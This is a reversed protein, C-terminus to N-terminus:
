EHLNVLGEKIAYLAAQTRNEVGLKDLITTVYTRVPWVSLFLRESIEQNSLGNALLLLIDTERDTLSVTKPPQTEQRSLEKVLINTIRSPFVTDGAYVKRIANEIETPSSDKLLYGSAGARIAAIVKSEELSSTIIIIKLDPLVERIKQAAEIGDMEPMLLDLLVIDPKTQGALRVAEVGNAAEAVVEFEDTPAFFAKLGERVMKHDDALLLKIKM